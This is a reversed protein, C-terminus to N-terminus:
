GRMTKLRELCEEKTIFLPKKDKELFSVKGATREKEGFFLAVSGGESFFVRVKRDLQGTEEIEARFGEKELERKIARAEEQDEERIPFVGVQNPLLWFPLDKQIELIAFVREGIDGLSSRVIWSKKGEIEEPKKSYLFKQKDSLDEIVGIYGGKWERGLQDRINVEFFLSFGAKSSFKKEIAIGSNEIAKFLDGSREAEREKGRGRDKNQNREQTEYTKQDRIPGYFSWTFNLSFITLMKEIFKLSSIVEESLKRKSCFITEICFDEEMEAFREFFPRNGQDSSRSSYSYEQSKNSKEPKQYFEYIKRHFLSKEFLTKEPSEVDMELRVAAMSSDIEPLNVNRGQRNTTGDIEEAPFSPTDIFVFRQDELEKQWLKKLIEKIAKGKPLWFVAEEEFFFLKQEKGLTEFNEKGWQKLAKAKQKKEKVDSFVDGWIRIHDSSIQELNLLSFVPIEAFEQCFPYPCYDVFDDRKWLTVLSNLNERLFDLNKHRKLHTLYDAANQPTMELVEIPLNEKLIDKMTREVLSLFDGMVPYPFYAEYFFGEPAIESTILRAKPFLRCIAVALIEALSAKLKDKM